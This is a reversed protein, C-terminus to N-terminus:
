KKYSNRLWNPVRLFQGLGICADILKEKRCEVGMVFYGGQKLIPNIKLFYKQNYYCPGVPTVM